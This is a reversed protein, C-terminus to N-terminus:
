IEIQKYEDYAKDMYYIYENIDNYNKFNNIAKLQNSIAYNFHLLNQEVLNQGLFKKYQHFVSETIFFAYDATFSNTPNTIFSRLM